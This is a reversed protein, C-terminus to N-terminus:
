RRNNFRRRDPVDVETEWEVGNRRGYRVHNGHEKVPRDYRDAVKLLAQKLDDGAVESDITEILRGATGYPNPAVLLIGSSRVAGEIPKLDARQRTSAVIYKGMLEDDWIVADLKQVLQDVQQEDKGYVVLCPLGDCSAVNLALRVSKMCPLGQIESSKGKAYQRAIRRLDAGMEGADGYAFNPGRRSQKLKRQGDPALICFGFNRLDGGGGFLTQQLFKAEQQDEYTATRICVFDRSARIVGPDSLFSRDM